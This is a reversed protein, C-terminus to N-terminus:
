HGASWARWLRAYSGGGEVLEEHTGDEVIRGREMVLIRDAHRAQSLRHAVVVATRGEAVRDAARALAEASASGAEATAEDLVVLPANSLLARALALHQAQEGTLAHGGQGVPTDLGQPLGHVWGAGAEDVARLLEAEGVAGPGLRLNDAVTGSFVHVEQSVLLATSGLVCAGGSWRVSGHQPDLSGAIVRALTTKGAGSAGVLAVTHGAEIRLDFGDLVPRQPDYGARVDELVLGGAGDGAAPASTRVPTTGRGDHGGSRAVGVLRALGAGAMQLEDVNALLAGIPGFLRHFFLAAATAAGVSAEGASVLVFGTALIASLGLLEAVNLRGFFRSRVVVASLSLSVAHLSAEAIRGLSSEVTGLSRVTAAGAAAELVHQGRESEAVRMRRYLPGSVRLFRQLAFWQVPVCLLTALAFRPDILAMGALTMGVTFLAGLFTPLIGGIAENVAEVDQSVRSVLDGTGAREVTEPPQAVAAEFVEERLDALAHQGVVALLIDGGATLGAGLLAAGALVAAGLALPTAADSADTAAVVDVMWGLAAPVALGAAAAAVLVVGAAAVLWPRRGFLRVAYRWTTRGDAIPLRYPAHDSAAPTPKPAFTSEPAPTTELASM